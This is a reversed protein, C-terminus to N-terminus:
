APFGRIARGKFAAETWIGRADGDPRADRDRGALNGQPRIRRAFYGQRYLRHIRAEQRHRDNTKGRGAAEFKDRGSQLRDETMGPSTGPMWTKAAVSSLRPHGPCRTRLRAERKLGAM